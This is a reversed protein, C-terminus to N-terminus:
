GFNAFSGRTYRQGGTADLAIPTAFAHTAMAWFALGLFLIRTM